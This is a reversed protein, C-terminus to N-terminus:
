DVDRISFRDSTVNHINAYSPPNSLAIFRSSIQREIHMKASRIKKPDTQEHNRSYFYQNEYPVPPYSQYDEPIVGYEYAPDDRIIGYPKLLLRRKPSVTRFYRESWKTYDIGNAKFPIGIAFEYYYGTEFDISVIIEEIENPTLTIHSYEPKGLSEGSGHLFDWLHPETIASVAYATKDSALVIAEYLKSNGGGGIGDKPKSFEAVTHPLKISRIISIIFFNAVELTGTEATNELVVFLSNAENVILSRSIYYEMAHYPSYDLLIGEDETSALPLQPNFEARLASPLISRKAKRNLTPFAIAGIAITILIGALVIDM